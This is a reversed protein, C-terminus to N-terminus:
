SGESGLIGHRTLFERLVGWPRPCDNHGCPLLVLEGAKAARALARGHAPPIMRDRDGHLVLVPGSFRRVAELNEFPDLVLPGFLGYRRALDRVSTFASELVLAALDREGALSAAAGGGVSRGYAVIRRGDVEPRDVLFEWADLMIRTISAETPRGGSRGYGPYEVLLIAVGWSRPEEFPELWWDILEGNGHAFIIAPSSSASDPAPVYWAEVNGAPGLRLVEVDPRGEVPSRGTLTPRPFLVSRQLAVALCLYAAAALLGLVLFALAPKMRQM